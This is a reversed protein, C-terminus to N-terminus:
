TGVMYQGFEFRMNTIYTSKMAMAFFFRFSKQDCLWVVVRPTVKANLLMNLFSNRDLVKWVIPVEKMTHMTSVVIVCRFHEYHQKEGEKM